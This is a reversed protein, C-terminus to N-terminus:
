SFLAGKIVFFTFKANKGDVNKPCETVYENFM